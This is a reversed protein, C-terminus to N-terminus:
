QFWKFLEEDLKYQLGVRAGKANYEEEDLDRDKFGVINYSFNLRLNKNLTYNVGMGLSYRVEAVGNTSLAGVGTDLKLRRGIDFSLRVDALMSFDSITNVDFSSDDYKFGVRGSLVTSDDVEFNQHTSLVQATRDVGNTVGKEQNLKYMFLMHHKNDYKPRRTAAVILTHRQVSDADRNEQRSFDDKLIATWDQNLRSILSARVGYHDTEHAQRTELRVLKRSNPNRTNTVAVSASISDSDSVGIRKILEFSPSIRLGEIVEYDARIGSVSEYDRSDFAGRVRYESYLRTSPLARSEVGVTFYDSELESTLGALGLLSNSLEYRTYGTVDDHLNLKASTAIRKRDISGIDQEYEVDAQGSKGFLSFKRRVGLLSSLFNDRDGGTKKSNQRLGGRVQWDKFRTEVVASVATREDDTISSRSNNADLLLASQSGLLGTLPQTHQIKTESRGTTAAGVGGSFDSDAWIHKFTTIGKNPWSHDVSVSLANGSGTQDSDSHAVSVSLHTRTGLHYDGYIGVLNKGDTAHGDRTYSAGLSLADGVQRNFRIGSVLYEDGGDVVDYSIRIFVPNQNVDLTPIASSFSLFGTEDEVTYDGYRSLRETQLIIGRNERSRTILEVTESNAVIPFQQLRYLLASGNGPIEEFVNSNEEPAAFFRLHNKGDDYVTSLGTLKRSIRALDRRDANPDTLFDGWLASSKDREVRVYLRSRSQAEFGRISADGHIPYHLTPNIDRLLQSDGSKDTDYSLTLHYDDKVTGKVFLAARSEFRGRTNLSGLDTTASFDGLEETAFYGGAEIFGSVFLPRSEAVQHVFMEDSFEGTSVRVRVEGTVGSPRYHLTRSGNEIRVQRGPEANQIDPEVWSGDSSDITVYYVGLAPLGNADLISVTIPLTSRGGDAPISESQADLTISTGASPRKFEGSALVRENGFPGTGKVEVTNEGADLEVGYWAVVQAKERRNIMREGIHSAPVPKDNVYLTPDIGARIVAMFRGNLSLDNRPWLWTGDKAQAKTINSVVEEAKLMQPRAADSKEPTTTEFERSDEATVSDGSIAGLDFGVPGDIVGNSLDGDVGGIQSPRDSSRQQSSINVKEANQLYWSNDISINRQKLESFIREADVKPCGAAFDVRHFDGDSLDVFRSEADAAQDVSLLKLDLGEPMTHTDVKIVYRGPELGYLSFLGDGDTIVYTGDQLYLWVGAIPWEKHNQVGDCNQDVYLKGFITAKNSFVGDRRLTVAATAPLSETTIRSTTFGTARATNIGNGEIAAATARAAYSIVANANGALSGVDFVLEGDGTPQPDDTTVGDLLATGPVYRYGFPLTDSVTIGDLGEAASNRVTVTYLVSQGIDVVAQAAVKELSLLRGTEAPDLPVDIAEQANISAGMFVGSNSGNFASGVIPTERYGDRGYSFNHVEYDTLRFPPVNSPFSFGVPTNVQLYYATDENLRPLSFRGSGDSVFEFAVGTVSDIEIEDTSARRIQVMAGAVPSLTRTDFVVSQRNVLAVEAVILGAETDGFRGSLQDNDAAQLVCTTNTQDYRPTINESNVFVPCTGGDSRDTASVEIPAVSRYLGPSGTELLVANVHDGALKSHVEAIVYRNGVSDTRLGPHDADTIFLQLYVGDRTVLYPDNDSRKLVYQQSNVFDSDAYFDPTQGLDMLEPAPQMFQLQGLQLAAITSFTNCTSNSVRDAVGDADADYLATSLVSTESVDADSVQFRVSFSAIQNGTLETSNVFYGTNVVQEPTTLLEASIWENGAFGELQVVPIGDISNDDAEFIDSFVSNVGVALEIVLGSVADSDVVYSASDLLGNGTNYGDVSHTILDGEFLAANCAPFTRLAIELEGPSGVTVRNVLNQFKDSGESEVTFPLEIQQGSGLTHSVRAAVVIDVSQEPALEATKSIVPESADVQGNRNSDLYVLPADFVSADLDPFSFSYSDSTNGQNVVRHPFQAVVGAPVDLHHVNEVTFTYLHGVAVSTANSTSQLTDDNDSTQYYILARNLIITGPPTLALAAVSLGFSLLIILQAGSFCKKIYRMLASHM